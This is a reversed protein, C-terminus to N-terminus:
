DGKKEGAPKSDVADQEVVVEEGSGVDDSVDRWVCLHQDVEGMYKVIAPFKAMDAPGFGAFSGLHLWELTPHWAMDAMSLTDMGGLWLDDGDENNNLERELLQLYKPIHTDLLLKRHKDADYTADDLGYHTPYLNISLLTTFETHLDTWQDIIAANLADKPYTRALRSVYRLISKSQAITTKSNVTLVPVQGYPLSPKLQCFEEKTIRDDEFAVDGYHLTNRSAQALGEADFYTLKLTPGSPAEATAGDASLLMAKCVDIIAGLFANWTLNVFRLM